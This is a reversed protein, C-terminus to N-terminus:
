RLTRDFFAVVRREYTAPQAALGGTHGAGPVEWLAKPARAADYYVPTLDQESPQGESGYVFLVPARIRGVLDVLDPPPGEDALVTTAGTMVSWFAAGGVPLWHSAPVHLQERVSRQGAGETVVARLKPTEAATQLMLEGGVSLGLGGIAKVDPRRDLFGIAALLDKDGGWGLLNGDGESQGEGRRDFLLVGYGHRALMRAHRVPNPRRGPFVIVAAGNRSPVYWGRLRLGDATTFAVRQYRGGLDAAPVPARAIHTAVFSMGLPYVLEAAAVLAVVGVLTRRLYRRGRREDLRRSRWVTAAGAGVLVAGAVAALIASLDDGSLRDLLAPRLGDAIGAVIALLGLILMLAGRAAGRLRLVAFAGGLVVAPVVLGSLLHDGASTGAEPHVFADDLVYLCVLAAAAWVLRADARVRLSERM